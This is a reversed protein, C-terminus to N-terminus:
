IELSKSFKVEILWLWNIKGAINFVRFNQQPKKNSFTTMTRLMVSTHRCENTLWEYFCINMFFKIFMFMFIIIMFKDFFSLSTDGGHAALLSFCEEVGANKRVLRAYSPLLTIKKNKFIEGQARNNAAEDDCFCRRREWTGHRPTTSRVITGRSLCVLLFYM